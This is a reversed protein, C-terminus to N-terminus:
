LFSILANRIIDVMVGLRGSPVVWAQSVQDIREFRHIIDFKGGISGGHFESFNLFIQSEIVELDIM